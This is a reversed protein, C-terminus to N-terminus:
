KFVNIPKLWSNELRALAILNNNSIVKVTQEVMQLQSFNQNFKIIQGNKIAVAEFNDLEIEPIFDLVDRLQLLLKNPRNYNVINKLNALSITNKISFNGVKLRRLCSVYGCVGIKKSLDRAFSRIYTGKLCTIEFGAKDKNNFILKIKNITIKRSKLDVSLGQRALEYSRRGEVKIASFVSPVQNIKGIFQPLINAIQMSSPRLDSSQTINGTVDDSDRFQGWTIEFYYGKDSEILYQCTKTAKNIAIPLVGSAFPDLTGLHGVKKAKTIKKVISVVKASSYGVPKDINIWLNQNCIEDIKAAEM